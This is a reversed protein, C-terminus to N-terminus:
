QLEFDILGFFEAPYALLGLVIMSLGSFVYVFCIITEIFTAHERFDFGDYHHKMVRDNKSRNRFVVNLAINIMRFYWPTQLIIDPNNLFIKTLRRDITLSVLILSICSLILFGVVGISFLISFSNFSSM